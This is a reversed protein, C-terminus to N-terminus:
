LTMSGYSKGDVAFAFLTCKAVAAFYRSKQFKDGYNTDIEELTERLQLLAALEHKCCGFCPCTCTLASIDGNNYIFEVEYPKTGEVIAYGHGNDLSIYRVRSETYYKRGKESSNPSLNFHNLMDLPFDTGDSSSDFMTEDYPPFFWSRATEIPLVSKEFTILHSETHFFNGKIDRKAVSIVRKYDAPNIKFNYNVDVVCGRKGYFSGEVFVFDGSQLDFLTNYYTLLATSDPFSVRVLSKRPAATQCPTYTTDDKDSEHAIDSFFGIKNKM